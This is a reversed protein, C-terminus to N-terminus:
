RARDTGTGSDDSSSRSDGDSSSSSGDSSSSSRSGDGGSNSDGDGHDAGPSTDAADSTGAGHGPWGGDIAAFALAIMQDVVSLDMHGTVVPVIMADCAAAEADKGTLYGSEGLRGRIWADELGSAGNMQRLQSIPIHVIVQTGAGARGPVM